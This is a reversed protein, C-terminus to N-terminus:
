ENTVNGRVQLTTLHEANPEPATVEDAEDDAEDDADVGLPARLGIHQLLDADGM